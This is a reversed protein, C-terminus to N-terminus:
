RKIILEKTIILNGTNRVTYVCRTIRSFYIILSMCKSCPKSTLIKNSPSLGSIYLTGKRINKLSINLKLLEKIVKAEAHITLLYDGKENKILPDSKFYNNIFPGIYTKRYLFLSAM